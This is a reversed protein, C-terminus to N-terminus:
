QRSCVWGASAQLASVYKSPWYGPRLGRVGGTPATSVLELTDRDYSSVHGDDTQNVAYRFRGHGILYSPSPIKITPGGPRVPGSGSGGAGPHLRRHDCASWSSSAPM